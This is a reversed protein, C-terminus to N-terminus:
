NWGNGSYMFLYWMYKLIFFHVMFNNRSIEMGESITDVIDILGKKRKKWEVQLHKLEKEASRMKDDSIMESSNTKFKELDKAAVV